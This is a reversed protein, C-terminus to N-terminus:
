LINDEEIVNMRYNLKHQSCILDGEFLFSSKLGNTVLSLNLAVLLIIFLMKKNVTTRFNPTKTVTLIDRSKGLKLPLQFLFSSLEFTAPILQPRETGKM